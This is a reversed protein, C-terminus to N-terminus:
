LNFIPLSLAMIFLTVTVSLFSPATIGPPSAETTVTSLIFSDTVLCNALQLYSLFTINVNGDLADESKNLAMFSAMFVAM